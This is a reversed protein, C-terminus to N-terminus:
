ANTHEGNAGYKDIDGIDERIIRIECELTVGTKKKVIDQVQNILNYVDDFSAEGRNVIFGAHKESVTAGGVCMGKLGCDEILKAAYNQVPRKFTSGASPYQLPQSERRRLALDNITEIIEAKDGATLEFVSSIIVNESHESFFSHRYAFDHEDAQIEKIEGSPNIYKTSQVVYSMEGEYAGCNMYVGGGVTGPIGHAFELGSLENEAAFMALTSLLTGSLAEVRDEDLLTCGSMHLTSIVIGSWGNEDILFNSGNGLVLVRLRHLKSFSLAESLEDISKPAAFYKAPGGIKFTTHKSLPENNIIEM